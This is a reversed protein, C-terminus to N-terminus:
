KPPIKYDNIGMKFGFITLKRSNLVEYRTGTPIKFMNVVMKHLFTETMVRLTITLQTIKFMLHKGM